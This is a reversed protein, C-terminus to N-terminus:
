WHPPVGERLRQDNSDAGDGWGHPDDSPSREPIVPVDGPSEKEGPTYEAEPFAEEIILEPPEPDSHM